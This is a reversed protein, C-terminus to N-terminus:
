QGAAEYHRGAEELQELTGIDYWPEQTVFCYVDEKKHLWEFFSGIKDTSYGYKVYLELLKVDKHPIMYIGTSILTSRPNSPKEVFHTLKGGEDTEVVGYQRALALDKVDYLALLTRKREDFQRKMKPLQFEFLNDAAILLVDDKISKKHVAFLIDGLAGLRTDNTETGDNIVEIRKSTPNSYAYDKAWELFNYFFKANSILYIGDIEPIENIKQIIHELIPKGGVLLLHKPKDKTLPYLRTGYGACLLLAKM